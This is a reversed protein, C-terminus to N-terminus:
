ILGGAKDSASEYRYIPAKSRHRNLHIAIKLKTLPTLRPLSYIHTIAPAGRLNAKLKLPAGTRKGARPRLRRGRDM